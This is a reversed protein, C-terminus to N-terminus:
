HRQPSALSNSDMSFVRFYEVLVLSQRTEPGAIVIVCAADVIVFSMLSGPDVIVDIDTSVIGTSTSISVVISVIAVMVSGGDVTVDMASVTEVTVASTSGM